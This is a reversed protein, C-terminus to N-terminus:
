HRSMLILTRDVVESKVVDFYPRQLTVAPRNTRPAIEAGKYSGVAKSTDTQLGIKPALDQVAKADEALDGTRYFAQPKAASMDNAASPAIQGYGYQGAYYEAVQEISADTDYIATAPPEKSPDIVRHANRTTETLQGLYRAGPYVVFSFAEPEAYEESGRCAFLLPIAILAVLVPRSFRPM